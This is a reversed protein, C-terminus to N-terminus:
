FNCIDFYNKNISQWSHHKSVYNYASESLRSRLSTDELLALVCETFEKPTDGLLIETGINARISGLGITTTVVPIKCAMAEIIKFQMGSGSKMPAIAVNATNLVKSMSIVKGTIKIKSDVSLKKILQPPNSGAILLTSFPYKNKIAGWCYEVFWCIAEINPKYKMNGSFIITPFHKVTGINKFIKLDVGLPLVQIKDVGIFNRDLESVVFSKIAVKAVNQEFKLVRNTEFYLLIKVIGKSIKMRRTFNLGMSDILEIYFLRDNLNINLLSRVTFAYIIDPKYEELIKKYSQSYKDSKFFACQFPHKKNFVAIFLEFIAEYLNWNIINVKIGMLELEKIDRSSNSKFSFCILQISNNKSLATLRNFSLIQDGTGNEPVPIRTCIALIRM